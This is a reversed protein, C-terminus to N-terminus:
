FNSAEECPSFPSFHRSDCRKHSNVEKECCFKVTVSSGV